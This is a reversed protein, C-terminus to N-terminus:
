ARAGDDTGPSFREGAPVAFPLRNEEPPLPCTAFATFACPPNTARNFDLVVQDEVPPSTRLYRGAPYTGNGNTSDSFALFLGDADCTYVRLHVTQGFRDFVVEGPALEEESDGLVTPIRVPRPPDYAAYTCPIRWGADLPFWARGPFATRRPNQRDWVRLGLRSGRRVVMMSLRGIQLRTPQDASDPQMDIRDFSQGAVQARAGTARTFVVQGDQVDFHGALAPAAQPPFTIPLGAESGAAQEGEQLWFLGVLALWSEEGRLSVEIRQRWASEAELYESLPSPPEALHAM